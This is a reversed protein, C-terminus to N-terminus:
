SVWINTQAMVGYICKSIIDGVCKYWKMMVLM